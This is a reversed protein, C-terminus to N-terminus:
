HQPRLSLFQAHAPQSQTIENRARDLAPQIEQSNLDHFPHLRSRTLPARQTAAGVLM